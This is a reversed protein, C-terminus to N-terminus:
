FVIVYNSVSKKFMRAEKSPVRDRWRDSVERSQEHYRSTSALRPPEFGTVHVDCLGSRLRCMPATVPFSPAREDGLTAAVVYWPSLQFDVQSRRDAPAPTVGKVRYADSTRIVSRTPSVVRFATRPPFPAERQASARRDTPFARSCWAILAQFRRGWGGCDFLRTKSFGECFGFEHLYHGDANRTGGCEVGARLVGRTEGDKGCSVTLSLLRSM